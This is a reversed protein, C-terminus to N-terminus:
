EDVKEIFAKLKPVATECHVKRLLTCPRLRSMPCSACFLKDISCLLAAAEEKTLDCMVGQKELAQIAMTLAERLMTYNEPPWNNKIVEAAEQSTVIQGEEAKVYGTAYCNECPEVAVTINDVRIVKCRKGQCVPCVAKDSM